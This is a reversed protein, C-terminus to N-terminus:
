STSTHAKDNKAIHTPTESVQPDSVGEVGFVSQLLECIHTRKRERRKNSTDAAITAHNNLSTRTKIQYFVRQSVIDIVVKCHWSASTIM